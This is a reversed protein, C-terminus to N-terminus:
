FGFHLSFRPASYYGRFSSYCSNHLYTPRHYGHSYDSRQPQYYTRHSSSCYGSPQRIWAYVPRGCRDYGDRVRIYNGAEARPAFATLGILALSTLLANKMTHIPQDKSPAM